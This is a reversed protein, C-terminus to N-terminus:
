TPGAVRVRLDVERQLHDAPAVVAVVVDDADHLGDAQVVDHRELGASRSVSM